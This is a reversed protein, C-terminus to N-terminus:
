MILECHLINYKLPHRIILSFQECKFEFLNSMYQGVGIILAHPMGREMGTGQVKFSRFSRSEPYYLVVCEACVLRM